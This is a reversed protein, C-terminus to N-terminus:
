VVDELSEGQLFEAHVLESTADDVAALLCQIEGNELWDHYSGDFQVLM